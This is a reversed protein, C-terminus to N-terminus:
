EREPLDAVACACIFAGVSREPGQADLKPWEALDRPEILVAGVNSTAFGHRMGFDTKSTPSWTLKFESAPRTVPMM